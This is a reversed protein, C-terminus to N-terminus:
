SLFNFPFVVLRRPDPNNECLREYGPPIMRKL